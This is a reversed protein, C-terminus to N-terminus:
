IPLHCLFTSNILNEMVLAVDTISGKRHWWQHQYSDPTILAIIAIGLVRKFAELQPPWVASKEENNQRKETM